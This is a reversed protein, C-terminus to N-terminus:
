RDFINYFYKLIQLIEGLSITKKIYCLIFVYAQNKLCNPIILEHERDLIKKIVDSSM